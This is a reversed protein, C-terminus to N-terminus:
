AKTQLILLRESLGASKFIDPDTDNVAEDVTRFDSGENWKCTVDRMHAMKKFDPQAHPGCLSRPCCATWYNM